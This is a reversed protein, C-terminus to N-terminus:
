SLSQSITLITPLLKPSNYLASNEHGIGKQNKASIYTNFMGEFVCESPM